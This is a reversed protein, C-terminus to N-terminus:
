IEDEEEDFDDEVGMDYLIRGGEGPGGGDNQADFYPLVVGERDRRQKETLGLDFTTDVGEEQGNMEEPGRKYLPHDELLIATEKTKGIAAGNLPPTAPLFFWERVGRGSKRRYEMELVTGRVAADNGRGNRGLGGVVGEIEEALGFVPGALSRDQAEKHDIVHPLSHVTLLTTSIYKLLTLPHPMYHSNAAAATSQPLPMDSHYTAVLSTSPNLLSSLFQPLTLSTAPHSILPHLTDLILLTKQRGSIEGAVKAIEKQLAIPNQQAAAIFVDVGKPKRLTELSVFVVRTKAVNARRIFERVLGKGSQELSDIVLTFPSANERCSLLKTILLLNHARRHQLQKSASM